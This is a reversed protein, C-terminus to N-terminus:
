HHLNDSSHDLIEKTKNKKGLAKMNAKTNVKLEEERLEYILEKMRWKCM